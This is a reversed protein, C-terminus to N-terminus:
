PAKNIATLPYDTGNQRFQFAVRDGVSIDQLMAPAGARFTMTMAPWGLGEVPGHSITVRDAAIATVSGAASYVVQASNANAPVTQSSENQGSQAPTGSGGCAAVFFPLALAGAISLPKM